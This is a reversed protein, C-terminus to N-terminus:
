EEKNVHIDRRTYVRDKWKFNGFLSFISIILIYPMYFVFLVPFFILLYKKNFHITGILVIIFDTFFKLVISFILIPAVGSFNMFYLVILILLGINVFATTINILFLHFSQLFQGVGM